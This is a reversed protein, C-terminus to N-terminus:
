IQSYGTPHLIIDTINSVTDKYQPDGSLEKWEPSNVFTSWGEDKAAMDPFGLMYTLNPLRDGILTEGFFVPDLGTKKFLAIEGGENFMEIKKKAAIENHSEYIRLEFLRSRKGKIADPIEVVPMDKFGLMLQSYIRLFSPNGMAVDLFAKGASRYEDDALLQRDATIVSEMNPHQLLVYVTPITEGYKVTFAGVNKIGIRNWAPIAAKELYTNLAGRQGWNVLEYRRFELLQQKASQASATATTLMATGLVGSALSFQRRDM